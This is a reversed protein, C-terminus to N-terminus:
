KNPCIEQILKINKEVLASWTYQNSKQKGCKGLQEAKQPNSLLGIVAKTIQQTNNYDVLIGNNDNVFETNGGSRTAVVPLGQAMAEIITNSMGEYFTNLVFVNASLFLKQKENKDTVKGLMHVSDTLNLKQTLKQLEDMQPGDGAIVLKADSIQQQIEPMLGILTDIGKWPVLRAMTLITHSDSKHPQEQPQDVANNIITIKDPNVGINTLFNKLFECDTIIRKAQKLIFNRRWIKARTLFDHKQNQFDTIYSKTKEQNFASEWVSDGTFRLIMPKRLFKSAIAASFGNSYNDTAYIIDNKLALIITRALLVFFRLPQPISVPLVIVSTQFGRKELERMLGQVIKGPGGLNPPFVGTSFLIHIKKNM